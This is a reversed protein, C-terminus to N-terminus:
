SCDHNEDSEEVCIFIQICHITVPSIKGQPAKLVVAEGVLLYIFVVWQCMHLGWIVLKSVKKYAKLPGMPVESM